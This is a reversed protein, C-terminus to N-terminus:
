ADHMMCGHGFIGTFLSSNRQLGPNICTHYIVSCYVYYQYKIRLTLSHTNRAMNPSRLESCTASDHAQTLVFWCALCCSCRASLESKKIWGVHIKGCRGVRAVVGSIKLCNEATCLVILMWSRLAGFYNERLVLVATEIARSEQDLLENSTWPRRCHGLRYSYVVLSTLPRYAEVAWGM